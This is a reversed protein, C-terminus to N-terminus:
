RCVGCGGVCASVCIYGPPTAQIHDLGETNKTTSLSSELSPVTCKHKDTRYKWWQVLCHCMYCIYIRIYYLQVDKSWLTVRNTLTGGFSKRRRSIPNYQNSKYRIRQFRKYKMEMNHKRSNETRESISILKDM